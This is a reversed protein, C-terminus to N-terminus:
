GDVKLELQNPHEASTPSKGNSKNCTSLNTKYSMCSPVYDSIQPIFELLEKKNFRIIEYQKSKTLKPKVGTLSEIWDIIMLNEETTFSCTAISGGTEVYEYERNEDNKLTHKKYRKSHWLSGDDCWLIALAQLDLGELFDPTVRKITKKKPNETYWKDFWPSFLKHNDVCYLYHKHQGGKSDKVNYPGLVRKEIGLISNIKDAKWKLWEYQKDSHGIRLHVFKKRQLGLWGDGFICGKLFATETQGLNDLNLVTRTTPGELQNSMQSPQQNGLTSFYKSPKWCNVSHM